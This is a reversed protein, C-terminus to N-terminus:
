ARRPSSGPCGSPARCLPRSRRRCPLEPLPALSIPGPPASGGPGQVVQALQQAPAAARADDEVPPSCPPAAAGQFLTAYEEPTIGLYEIAIDIRVPYRWLWSQFGAPDDAPDLVFERICKRFTRMEEYRCSGLHRLYTRSVDLAQSYPLRCSSFDAKLKNFVAPEVAHQGCPLRRRQTSPCRPSCASPSTVRSTRRTM